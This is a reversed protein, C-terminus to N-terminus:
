PPRPVLYGRQAQVRNNTLHLYYNKSQHSNPPLCVTFALKRREMRECTEKPKASHLCAGLISVSLIVSALLELLDLAEILLFYGGLLKFGKSYSLLKPNRVAFLYWSTSYEKLVPRRCFVQCTAKQSKKFDLQLTM